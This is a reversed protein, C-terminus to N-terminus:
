YHWHTWLWHRVSVPLIRRGIFIVFGEIRKILYQSNSSLRYLWPHSYPSLERRLANWLKADKVKLDLLYRELWKLYTLRVKYRGSSGANACCSDPHQRYREFYERVVIVPAELCIKANFVQDETVQLVGRFAEEFGGVREVADRRVLICSPTQIVIKRQLLLILFEQSKLPTNSPVNCIDGVFDKHMDDQNGTWSFWFQVPGRVM